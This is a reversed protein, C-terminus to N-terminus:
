REYNKFRHMTGTSCDLTVLYGPNQLEWVRNGFVDTSLASRTPHKDKLSTTGIRSVIEVAKAEAQARSLERPQAQTFSARGLSLAASLAAFAGVYYRRKNRRITM